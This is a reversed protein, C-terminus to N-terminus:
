AAARSGNQSQVRPQQAMRTAAAPFMYNGPKLQADRAALLFQDENELKLWDKAHLQLVMWSLFSAFFLVVASLVIPLWLSTLETHM